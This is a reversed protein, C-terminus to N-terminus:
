DHPGSNTVYVRDTSPNVSVADPANGVQITHIVTNTKGHIVSVSNDPMLSFIGDLIYLYSTETGGQGCIM